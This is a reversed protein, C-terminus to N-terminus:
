ESVREIYTRTFVMDPLDQFSAKDVTILTRQHQFTGDITRGRLEDQIVIQVPIYSDQIRKYNTIATTRMHQGSLSYDEFKRVLNDQDIWIKMIPFSVEDTVAELNYVDTTYPGLQATGHGTIRYDQALTSQTFDSNRANTNQFRDKASVVTFRRPVPDYLWMKGGIKLYGKGRDSKPEMVIITYTDSRDRRFIVTKTRSTGEGPRVDTITYEASFDYETYSVLADVKELIERGEERSFETFEEGALSVMSVILMLIIIERTKRIQKRHIHRSM